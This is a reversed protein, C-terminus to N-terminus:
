LYYFYRVIAKEWSILESNPRVRMTTAKTWTIDLSYSIHTYANMFFDFGSKWIAFIVITIQRLKRLLHKGIEKESHRFKTVGKHQLNVAPQFTRLSYYFWYSYLEIKYCYCSCNSSLEFSQGILNTYRGDNLSFKHMFM